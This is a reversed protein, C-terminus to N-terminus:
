NTRTVSTGATSPGSSRRLPRHYEWKVADQFLTNMAVDQLGLGEGVGAPVISPVRTSVACHELLLRTFPVSRSIAAVHFCNEGHITLLNLNAGRKVLCQVVDLRGTQIALHLATYGWMDQVDVDMEPHCALLMAFPSGSKVGKEVAVHLATRDLENRANLVHPPLQELVWDFLGADERGVVSHLVTQGRSSICAVDGGHEMAMQVTEVSCRSALMPMVGDADLRASARILLQVIEDKQGRAAHILPSTGTILDCRSADAGFELLLKVMRVCRSQIALSLMREGSVVYANPDIDYKLLGRVIDLEGKEVAKGLIDSDTAGFDGAPVGWTAHLSFMPEDIGARHGEDFLFNEEYLHLPALALTQAQHSIQQTLLSPLSKCTRALRLTSRPDLHTAIQSILEPPLDGLTISTHISQDPPNM